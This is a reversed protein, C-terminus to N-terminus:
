QILIEIIRVVVKISLLLSALTTAHRPALSNKLSKVFDRFVGEQFNEVERNSVCPVTLPTLTPVDRSPPAPTLNSIKNVNNLDSKM